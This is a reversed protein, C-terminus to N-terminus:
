EEAAAGPDTWSAPFEVKARLGMYRELLGRLYQEDYLEIPKGRAAEDAGKTFRSTTVLIGKSAGRDVLLGYLEHVPARGVPRRYRKAQVIAIGGVVPDPNWAIVDVGGDGSRQTTRAQYGMHEFLQRVLHEFQEYTLLALNARDDLQALVDQGEVFRHDVVHWRVLPEIPILEFASPSVKGTLGKKLCPVPEVQRLDIGKFRERDVTVSVLYPRIPKGISRDIAEVFCNLAISDVIGSADASFLIHLTRIALRAVAEAYESAIQRAPRAVEVVSDDAKVYRYRTVRPIGEVTPLDREVRLQRREADYEVFATRPLYSPLVEADMVERFYRRVAWPEGTAYGAKIRDIGANHEEAEAAIRGCEAEHAERRRGLEVVRRQERQDRAALAATYERLAAERALREREEGGPLLRRVLGTLPAPAPTFDALSPVREPRALGTPDFPPLKPERKLRDLDLAWETDLATSMLEAQREEIERRQADERALRARAAALRAQESASSGSPRRAAGKGAM